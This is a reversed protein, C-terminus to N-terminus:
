CICCTALSNNSSCLSVVSINLYVFISSNVTLSNLLEIKKNYNM